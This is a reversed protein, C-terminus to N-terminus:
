VSRKLVKIEKILMHISKSNTIGIIGYYAIFVIALYMINHWRDSNNNIMFNGKFTFCVISLVTIIILNKIFFGRDYSIKENRNVVRLSLRWLLIWGLITSIVAGPLWVKFYYLLLINSVINVLLAIGLIKVRQKVKGLWALIGYNIIFLANIILFPASYVLLAWSYLFKAGFLVGAIEPWFALFLGWISLAFVSFYKYLTNQLLRLKDNDKKTVLETVIPFIMTLLPSIALTYVSVLSFYNSYYGAAKPWLLNIVIQQDVQGLLSWINAGLFVRLAYKLQTKILEWSLIFKGRQLTHRYKKLFIIGIVILCIVIGSIRAISFTNVTLTKTLRFVLTFWLITYMRTLESLSLSIADQFSNYVSTFVGIFNIGIFYFALTRLIQVAEPSRFHNIALRNAGFYIACAILCGITVQAILTLIFITKYKDYKKELRYKPLFYQLAETLGLDHYVSVLTVFGLVSYFIGIDEISLSNSVIVRILYGVPVTIIMFFYLWFGKKILKHGLPQDALLEWDM